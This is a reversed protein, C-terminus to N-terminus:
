SHSLYSRMDEPLSDMGEIAVNNMERLGEEIHGVSKMLLTLFIVLEETTLLGDQLAAVTEELNMRMHSLPGYIKLSTDSLHQVLRTDVAREGAVARVIMIMGSVTGAPDHLPSMSVTMDMTDGSKGVRPMSFVPIVEGKMVRDAYAAFTKRFTLPVLDHILRGGLDITDHEFIRVFPHNWRVIRQDPGTILVANDTAALLFQLQESASHLRLHEHGEQIVSILGQIEGNEGLVPKVRHAHWVGGYEIMGSEPKGSNLVKEYPCESFRLGFRRVMEYCHMNLLDNEGVGYFSLAAPNTHFVTGDSRFFIVPEEIVDLADAWLNKGIKDPPSWGEPAGREEPIM